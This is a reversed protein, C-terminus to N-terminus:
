GFQGRAKRLCYTCINAPPRWCEPPPLCDFSPSFRGGIHLAHRRLMRAGASRGARSPRAGPRNSKVRRLDSTQTGALRRTQSDAYPACLLRRRRPAVWWHRGVIPQFRETVLSTCSHGLNRSPRGGRADTWLRPGPPGAPCVDTGTRAAPCFLRACLALQPVARRASSSKSVKSAMPFAMPAASDM